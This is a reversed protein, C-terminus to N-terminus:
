SELADAFAALRAASSRARSAAEAREEESYSSALASANEPLATIQSLIMHFRGKTSQAMRGNRGGLTGGALEEIRETYAHELDAVIKAQRAGSRTENVQTVLDHVEEITLQARLCLRAAAEFGEDTKINTLRQRVGQTLKEWDSMLIGVESARRDAAVKNWRKQIEKVPVQMRQAAQPMSVGNDMLFIAHAVREDINVPLGHKTNAVMTLVALTKAPAKVEYVDLTRDVDTSDLAV